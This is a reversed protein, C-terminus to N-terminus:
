AIAEVHRRRAYAAQSAKLHAYTLAQANHITNMRASRGALYVDQTSDRHTSGEKSTDRSAQTSQTSTKTTVIRNPNFTVSM